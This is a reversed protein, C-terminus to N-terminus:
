LRRKNREAVNSALMEDLWQTLTSKRFIWSKGIKAAPVRQARAMRELTKWHIGLLLSAEKSTILAEFVNSSEPKLHQEEKSNVTTFVLLDPPVIRYDTPASLSQGQM